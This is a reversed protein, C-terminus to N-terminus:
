KFLEDSYPCPVPITKDNFLVEIEYADEKKDSPKFNKPHSPDLPIQDYDVGEIQLVPRPLAEKADLTMTCDWKFEESLLQFPFKM